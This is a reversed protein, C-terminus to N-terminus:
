VMGMGALASCALLRAGMLATDPACAFGPKHWPPNEAGPAGGGLFYFFSPAHEGYVSFDESAMTPEPAFIDAGAAAAARRAVAAMEPGNIVAATIIEYTLEARCGYAAATAAAIEEMRRLAAAQAARGMTRLSGTMRVRDVILNEETGGHISCVSLVAPELPNLSRSVVTQLAGVMACAAALPDNCLHPMSGHGGSGLAEIAFDAKDAMLPGEKVGVSGVPAAPLNHLGFVMDMPAKEFLGKDRLLRAGRLIEEGPQFIFVVDGRLQERIGCLAMAAGMLGVTHVDHGCAHMIGPRASADAREVAETQRIADIDARLGVVPGAGGRLRFVAGTELGLPAEELGLALMEERILRTTDHEQLSLEPNAHLRAELERLRPAKETIIRKIERLPM